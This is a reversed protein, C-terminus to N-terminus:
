ALTEALAGLLLRLEAQRHTGTKAFISQLRTRATSEAIGVAKAALAADGQKCLALAFAAEASTLGFVRRLQTDMEQQDPLQLPRVFLVHRSAALPMAAQAHAHLSAFAVLTGETDHVPLVMSTMDSRALQRQLEKWAKRTAHSAPQLAAMIRGHWWGAAVMQEAVANGDIWRWQADLVFMGRQGLAIGAQAQLQEFQVRLAFANAVHPALRQFLRLCDQDYAGFRASRCLTLFAGRQQEYAACIGVSHQTDIHRLFGDYYRSATLERRSVYNDGDFVAGAQLLPVTRQFWLNDGLFESYRLIEEEGAGTTLFTSASPNAFDERLFSTVHSRTLDGLSRMFASMRAPDKAGAYLDQLLADFVIDGEVPKGKRDLQM